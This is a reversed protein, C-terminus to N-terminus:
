RTIAAEMAVILAHIHELEEDTWGRLTDTTKIFENKLEDIMAIVDAEIHPEAESKVRALMEQVDTLISM